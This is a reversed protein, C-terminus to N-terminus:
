STITKWQADTTCSLFEYRVPTSVSFQRAERTLFSDPTICFAATPTGNVPCADLSPRPCSFTWETQEMPANSLYTAQGPKFALRFKTFVSTGEAFEIALRNQDVWRCSPQHDADGTLDFKDLGGGNLESQLVVPEDFRISWEIGSAAAVSAAGLFLPTLYPKM